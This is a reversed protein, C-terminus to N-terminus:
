GAELAAIRARLSKIEAILFPVLKSYDVGLMGDAGECVMEPAILAAEQAILGARQHSGDVRWDFQRVRLADFMAGTDVTADEINEKLREDSSTNYATATGSTTITGVAGNGNYFTVHTTPTTNIVSKRLMHQNGVDVAFGSATGAPLATTGVIFDGASNIRARESGGTAFAIADAAPRYLGTDGDGSFSHSPASALGAGTMLQGSASIEVAKTGAITFGINNAGIRYIGTDTDGSFTISPAAATGDNHIVADGDIRLRETGGTAVAVTNASPSFIGTDTDGAPSLGPTAAAGADFRGYAPPAVMVMDTGDYEVTVPQGTQLDGAALDTKGAATVKKIMKAGLSSVNLTVAGTNAATARFSFRQNAAYAASVPSVTLTIANATGGVTGTVISQDQVQGVTAYQNRATGNGVNTHKFTAMPLDATPSNEGNKTLCANIGAAFGDDEADMRSATINIGNDRDAVWNYLRAFVGNGDWAM